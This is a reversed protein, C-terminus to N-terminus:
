SGTSSCPGPQPIPSDNIGCIILKLFGLPFLLIDASGSASGTDAVPQPVSPAAQAPAYTVCALTASLAATAFATALPRNM